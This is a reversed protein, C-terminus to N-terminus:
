LLRSIMTVAVIVTLLAFGLSTVRVSAQKGLRVGIGGGIWTLVSVPLITAGDIYGLSWQLLGQDQPLPTALAFQLAGSFSILVIASSSISVARTLHVGQALNMLPVMAVGGGIGALAALFGGLSGTLGMKADKSSLRKASQVGEIVSPTSESEPKMYFLVAVIAMLIAFFPIFIDESYLPSLTIQKGMWVGGMGFVGVLAGERLYLNSSRYQQWTSSLSATFTCFLSSGIAWPIPDQVGAEQFLIFFAPTFLIGGGIGFFGAAIGALLGFLALIGIDM